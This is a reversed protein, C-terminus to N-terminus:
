SSKRTRWIVVEPLIAGGVFNDMRVLIEFFHPAGVPDIKMALLINELRQSDLLLEGAAQTAQATTGAIMLTPATYSTEPLFVLRAYTRHHEIDEANPFQSPERKAPSKNIFVIRGDSALGTPFNLKDEYLQAWPNSISSGILILSHGKFDDLQVEHGSRLTIHQAYGAYSRMILGAVSM